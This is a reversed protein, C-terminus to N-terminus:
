LRLLSIYTRRLYFTITRGAFRKPLPCEVKNWIKRFTCALKRSQFLESVTTQSRKSCVEHFKTLVSPHLSSKAVSLISRRIRSTWVQLIQHKFVRAIEELQTILVLRFFTHQKMLVCLYLFTSSSSRM